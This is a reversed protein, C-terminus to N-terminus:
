AVASPSAEGDVPDEAYSKRRSAMEHEMEEQYMAKEFEARAREEADLNLKFRNINQRIFRVMNDMRVDLRHIFLEHKESMTVAVIGRSKLSDILGAYNIIEWPQVGLSRRNLMLYEQLLIIFDTDPSSYGRTLRARKGHRSYGKAGRVQAALALLRPEIVEGFVVDGSSHSIIRTAHSLNVTFPMGTFANIGESVTGDFEIRRSLVALINRAGYAILHKITGQYPRSASVAFEVVSNTRFQSVPVAYRNAKM